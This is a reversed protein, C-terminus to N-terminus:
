SRDQRLSVTLGVYTDQAATAATAATSVSVDSVIPQARLSTVLTGISDLSIGTLSLSLTDDKLSASVITAFPAVHRDVLDFASQADVSSSADGALYPGYSEYESKVSDYDSLGGDVAALAQAQQALDAKRADVQGYVDFVAFKIFLLVLVLLVLGGLLTMATNSGQSDARVLNISTKTPYAAGARATWTHSFLKFPSSAM